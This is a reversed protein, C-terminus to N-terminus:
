IAGKRGPAPPRRRPCAGNCAADGPRPEQEPIGNWSTVQAMLIQQVRRAADGSREPARVQESSLSAVLVMGSPVANAYIATTM